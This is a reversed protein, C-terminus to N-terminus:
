DRDALGPIVRIYRRITGLGDGYAHQHHADAALPMVIYTYNKTSIKSRSIKMRFLWRLKRGIGSRM